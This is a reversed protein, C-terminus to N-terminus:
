RSIVLASFREPLVLSSSSRCASTGRGRDVALMESAASNRSMSLSVGSGPTIPGTALQASGEPSATLRHNKLWAESGDDPFWVNPPWRM